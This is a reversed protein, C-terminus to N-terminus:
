VVATGLQELKSVLSQMLDIRLLVSPMDMETDEAPVLVVRELSVGSRQMRDLSASIRARFTQMSESRHQALVILQRGPGCWEPARNDWRAGCEAIVVTTM